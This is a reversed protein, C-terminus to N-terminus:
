GDGRQDFEQLMAEVQTTLEARGRAHTREAWRARIQLRLGYALVADLEFPAAAAAAELAALRLADLARERAGPDGAAIAEQAARRLTLDPVGELRPLSAPDLGRRAARESACAATLVAQVRQWRRAFTSRGGGALVAELEGLHRPDLHESCLTRFAAPSLPPPGGDGALAPLSAVLYYYSV